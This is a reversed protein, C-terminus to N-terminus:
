FNSVKKGDERLAEQVSILLLEKLLSRNIKPIDNNGTMSTTQCEYCIGSANVKSRSKKLCEAHFVRPCSKCIM